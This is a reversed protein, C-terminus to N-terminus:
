AAAPRGPTWNVAREARRTELRRGAPPPASLAEVVDQADIGLDDLRSADMELLSALAIRQARRARATRVAKVFHAFADEFFAATTTASTTM